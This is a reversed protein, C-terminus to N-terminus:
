MKILKKVFISEHTIVRIFYVGKSFSSIDITSFYDSFNRDLLPRGTIDFLTMKETGTYHPYEITIADSTPNPYILLEKIDSTAIVGLSYEIFVDEVYEPTSDNFFPVSVPLVSDNDNKFFYYDDEDEQLDKNSANECGIIAKFYEQANTAAVSFGPQLLVYNEAEAVYRKKPETSLNIPTNLVINGQANTNASITASKYSYNERIDITRVSIEYKNCPELGTITYTTNTTTMYQQGNGWRVEYKAIPYDTVAPPDWAVTISSSTASTMRLNDPPNPFELVYEKITIKSITYEVSIPMDSHNSTVWFQNYQKKPNWYTTKSPFYLTCTSQPVGPMGCTNSASGIIDKDSISSPFAALSCTSDIKAPPLINNAAYLEICAKGVKETMVVEIQYKLNSYFYFGTFAGESKKPAGSSGELQLSSNSCYPTGHSTLWDDPPHYCPSTGSGLYSFTFEEKSLLTQAFVIYISCILLVLIFLLKKM